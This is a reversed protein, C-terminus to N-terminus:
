IERAWIERAWIERAWIERAWIERAWIERAWIERAWIERAWIEFKEDPCCLVGYNCPVSYNACYPSLDITKWVITKRLLAM